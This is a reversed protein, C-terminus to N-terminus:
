RAQEAHRELEGALDPDPGLAASALHWLRRDPLDALQGALHRHVDLRAALPARQYVASRMLPHRFRLSSGAAEILGADIARQADGLTVPQGATESAAALLRRVDCAADAALTLLLASERVGLTSARAAFAAELRGNLPLPGATAVVAASRPLEVLALPNGAAEALFRERVSPSLRPAHTDLLAAADAATLRGLELDPLDARRQPDDLAVTRTGGVALVADSGVRRGVFAMVDASAKDLWHLDDIVLVIPRDAAADVIVDLAALAVAYLDPQGQELGFAARLAARHVPPLGGIAASLPFLLQHLAAYPLRSESEVGAATLVRMGREEATRALRDLLATKGIGPEGRIVLASGREAATQDLLRDLLAMETDRGILGAGAQM